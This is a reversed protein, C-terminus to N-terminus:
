GQNSMFASHVSFVMLTNKVIYEARTIMLVYKEPKSSGVINRNKQGKMNESAQYNQNMKM